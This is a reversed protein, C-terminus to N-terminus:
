TVHGPAHHVQMAQTVHGRAANLLDIRQNHGAIMVAGDHDISPQLIATPKSCCKHSAAAAMIAPDRTVLTWYRASSTTRSQSAAFRQLGRIMLWAFERARSAKSRYAAASVALARGSVIQIGPPVNRM